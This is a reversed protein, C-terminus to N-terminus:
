SNGQGDTYLGILYQGYIRFQFDIHKSNSFTRVISPLIPETLKTARNKSVQQVFNCAFLRFGCFESNSPEILKFTIQSDKISFNFNRDVPSKTFTRRRSLIRTKIICPPRNNLFTDYIGPFIAPTIVPAILTVIIAENRTKSGYCKTGQTLSFPSDIQKTTEWIAFSM